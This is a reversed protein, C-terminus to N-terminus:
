NYTQLQGQQTMFYRRGEFYSGKSCNESEWLPQLNDLSFAEKIQTHDSLDFLVMPKKHDIHWGGRGYNDWSMGETFLNQLHHVLDLSTYGLLEFTKFNKNKVAESMMSRMRFAMLKHPVKKSKLYYKKDSKSKISRYEETLKYERIKDKNKLRYEKDLDSKLKKNNLSWQKLYEKRSPEKRRCDKCYSKFGSRSTSSKGFYKNEKTDGCKACKSFDSIIRTTTPKYLTGKKLANSVVIRKVFEFYSGVDRAIKKLAYGEGYLIRVREVLEAPPEKHQRVYKNEILGLEKFILRIQYNSTNFAKSIFTVSKGKNHLSVVAEKDLIAKRM